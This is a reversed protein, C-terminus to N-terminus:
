AAGCRTQWGHMLKSRRRSSQAAPQPNFAAPPQTGQWRRERSPVAATWSKQEKAHCVCYYKSTLFAGEMEMWTEMEAGFRGEAHRGAAEAHDSVRRADRSPPRGVERWAAFQAALLYRRGQVHPKCRTSRWCQAAEQCALHAPLDVVRGPKPARGLSSGVSSVDLYGLVVTCPPPPAASSPRNRDGYRKTGAIWGGLVEICV